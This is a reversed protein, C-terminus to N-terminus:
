QYLQYFFVCSFCCDWGVTGMKNQCGVPFVYIKKNLRIFHKLIDDTGTTIPAKLTLIAGVDLPCPHDGMKKWNPNAEM